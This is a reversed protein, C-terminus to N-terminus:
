EIGLRDLNKIIHRLTKVFAQLQEQNLGEMARITQRAVVPTLRDLLKRGEPTLTVITVRNDDPSLSTTVLQMQAMREILRGVTNRKILAHQALGSISINEQARLVTLIRYISKNVGNKVLVAEVDEHYQFDAHAILYFPSGFLDFDHAAPDLIVNKNM